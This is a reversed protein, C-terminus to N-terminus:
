VSRRAGSSSPTRPNEQAEHMAGPHGPVPGTYSIGSSLLVRHSEVVLDLVLRGVRLALGLLGGAGHGTVFAHLGFTAVVLALGLGLLGSAVGLLGSGVELVRDLRVSRRCVDRPGRRRPPARACARGPHHPPRTIRSTPRSTRRESHSGTGRSWRSEAAARRRRCHTEPTVTTTPATTSPRESRM